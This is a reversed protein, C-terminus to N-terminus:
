HCLTLNFTIEQHKIIIDHFNTQAKLTKNDARLADAACEFYLTVM